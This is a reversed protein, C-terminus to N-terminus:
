SDVKGNELNRCNLHGIEKKERELSFFAYSLFQKEKYSLQVSLGILYM